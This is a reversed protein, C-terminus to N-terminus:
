FMRFSNAVKREFVITSQGEHTKNPKSLLTQPAYCKLFFLLIKKYVKKRSTNIKDINLSEMTKM